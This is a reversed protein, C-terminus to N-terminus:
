EDRLNLGEFIMQEAAWSVYSGAGGIDLRNVMLVMSVDNVPDIFFHTGFAGSWGFVGNALYRGSVSHPRFVCMGLGWATGPSDMPPDDPCPLAMQAVTESKLLQSGEFTGGGALMRVFRDYSDLTSYLGASGCPYSFDFPNVFEGPKGQDILANEPRAYMRPVRARMAEDATFGTDKMGLPAFIEKELFDGLEMGSVAEIVRGLIDFGTLASYGTGEGPQFDLPCEAIVAMREGLTMGPRHDNVGAAMSVPGHGMGSRHRLLDEITVMRKMPEFEMAEVQAQADAANADVRRVAVKMDRRFEGIYKDIGDKIDILGREYLIMIGVAVVPKTMSAMRFVTGETVPVGGAIDAYGLCERHAECGGKRVIVSAGAIHGDSIFGSLSNHLQAIM